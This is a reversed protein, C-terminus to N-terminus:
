FGYSGVRMYVKGAAVTACPASRVMRVAIFGIVVTCRWLFFRFFVFEGGETKEGGDQLTVMADSTAAVITYSSDVLPAHVAIFYDGAPANSVTVLDTGFADSKWTFSSASPLVGDNRVYVDQLLVSRFLAVGTLYFCVFVCFAHTSCLCANRNAPLVGCKRM